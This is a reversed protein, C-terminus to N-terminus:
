AERRAAKIAQEIRWSTLQSTAPFGPYVRQETKALRALADAVLGYWTDPVQEMGHPVLRLKDAMYERAIQVAEDRTARLAWGLKHDAVLKATVEPQGVVEAIIALATAREKAVRKDRRMEDQARIGEMYQGADIGHSESLTRGSRLAGRKGVWVSKYRKDEPEFKRYKGSPSEVETYRHDLLWRIIIEVRSM